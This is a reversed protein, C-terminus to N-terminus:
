ENNESICDSPSQNINKFFLYIAIVIDILYGLGFIGFSLLYLVGVLYQKRYFRHIGLWGFFITFILYKTADIEVPEKIQVSTNNQSSPSNGIKTSYSLGTGPASIRARAGNRSNFSVGGYKGGISVGVSKKGVNLKVGPAIKKSKRFRTAM